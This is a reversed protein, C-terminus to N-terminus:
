LTQWWRRQWKALYEWARPVDSPWRLFFFPRPKGCNQNFHLSINIKMQGRKDRNTHTCARTNAAALFSALKANRKSLRHGPRKCCFADVDNVAIRYLLLFQLYIEYMSCRHRTPEGTTMGDCAMNLLSITLMSLGKIELRTSSLLWETRISRM